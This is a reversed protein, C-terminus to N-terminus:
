KNKYIIREFKKTSFIFKYKFYLYILGKIHEWNHKSFLKKRSIRQWEHIIEVNKDYVVNYGYLWARMCFEVDEPAYFINEDLRGIEKVLKIKMLWCASMLYGVKFINNNNYKIDVVELLEGKKKAFKFPLIKLIKTTLTPIKRGSLQIRGESTKMVPGIIGNQENENLVEIMHNIAIQNVITDSDLICLYDVKDQIKKIGINRSITTGLNSDLKILDLYYNENNINIDKILNVTNDSSGNDIIVIRIEDFSLNIISNLCKKIYKESNWTLIVFAIKIM